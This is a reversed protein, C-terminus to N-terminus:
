RRRGFVPLVLLETVCSAVSACDENRAITQHLLMQIVLCRRCSQGATAGLDTACHREHGHSQTTSVRVANGLESELLWQALDQM